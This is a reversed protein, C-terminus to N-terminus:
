NHTHTFLHDQCYEKAGSCKSCYRFELQPDSVDTRGCICCRHRVNGEYSPKQETRGYTMKRRERHQGAVPRRVYPSSKRTSYFFLVFNLISVLAAIAYGRYLIKASGDAGGLFSPLFGRVITYGFFVADILALYRAKIPIVFFMLFQMDPYTAAFAFFMSLNLYQTTMPFSIGTLFYAILAGLVHFLIGSFFYLNFRFSGWQAELATGIMYYFYLSILIWIYSTSPPQLIFTFIRWIQGKLIMSADLSLYGYYLGPAFMVLFFGVAYAIIIYRTLNRIAYRGYKRELKAIWNTLILM